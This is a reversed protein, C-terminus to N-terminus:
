WHATTANQVTAGWATNPNFVDPNTAWEGNANLDRRTILAGNQHSLRFQSGLTETEFTQSGGYRGGWLPTFSSATLPSNVTNLLENIEIKGTGNNNSINSHSFGKGFCNHNLPYRRVIEGSSADVYIRYPETSANKPLDISEKRIDFAYCYRYNQSVFEEGIRAIILEGKPLKDKGKFNDTLLKQDALAFDLAQKEPMPRSLDLDINEVIRGDAIQLRKHKSHLYFQVHEVPVNKYFLQYKQHRIEKFDTEENILKMKYEKGLGIADGFKDYFTDPDIAEKDQRFQIWGSESTYSALERFKKNNERLYKPQYKAQGFAM